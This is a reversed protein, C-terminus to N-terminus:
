FTTYVMPFTSNPVKLAESDIKVKEILIQLTSPTSLNIESKHTV